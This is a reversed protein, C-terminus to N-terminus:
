IIKALLFGLELLLYFSLFLLIQSLFDGPVLFLALLYLGGMFYWKKRQLLKRSLVRVRVLLAVGLPIEAALASILLTKGLFSLYNQLRLHAEFHAYGFSLFFKLLVPLWVFYGLAVGLAVLFFSLILIRKGFRREEPFLGPSIYGWAQYVLLPLTLTLALFFTAKLAAMIAEPLTTFVLKLREEGMARSYPWLFFPTLRPFFYFLLCWCTFLAALCVLLRKRLEALHVELPLCPLDRHRRLM